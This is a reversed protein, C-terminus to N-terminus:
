TADSDGSVVPKSTTVPKGGDDGW